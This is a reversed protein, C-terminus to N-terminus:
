GIGGSDRRRNGWLLIMVGDEFGLYFARRRKKKDGGWQVESSDFFLVFPKKWSRSSYDRTRESQGQIRKKEFDVIYSNKARGYLLFYFEMRGNVKPRKKKPQTNPTCGVGVGGPSIPVFINTERYERSYQNGIELVGIHQCSSITARTIKPLRNKM